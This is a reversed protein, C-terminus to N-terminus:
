PHHFQSADCLTSVGLQCVGTLCEEFIDCTPLNPELLTHSPTLFLLYTTQPTLANVMTCIIEPNPSQCPTITPISNAWRHTRGKMGWTVWQLPAGAHAGYELIASISTVSLCIGIIVCIEYKQVGIM